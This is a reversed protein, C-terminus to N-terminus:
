PDGTDRRNRLPSYPRILLGRHLASPEPLRQGRQDGRRHHRQRRDRRQGRDGLRGPSRGPLPRGRRGRHHVSYGGRDVAPGGRRPHQQGRRRPEPQRGVPRAGRERDGLRRRRHSRRDDRVRQRRSGPCRRRRRRDVSGGYRRTLRDARSRDAEGNKFVVVYSGDVATASGAYLVTGTAPAAFAPTTLSLAIATGALIAAGRTAPRM